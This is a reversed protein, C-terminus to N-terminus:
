DWRLLEAAKRKSEEETLYTYDERIVSSEAKSSNSLTKKQSAQVQDESESKTLNQSNKSTKLFRQRQKDLEEEIMDAAEEPSLVKQYQKYYEIALNLVEEQQEFEKILEYKESSHDLVKSIEARYQNLNNDIDKQQRENEERIRREEEADDRKKLEAKLADIESQIRPDLANAKEEELGLARETLKEYGWGKEELFGLPDSNLRSDLEEYGSYKAKLEELERKQKEIEAKFNDRETQFEKERRSLAAFRKSFQDEEEVEVEKQSPAAEQESSAAESFAEEFSSEVFPTFTQETVNSESM